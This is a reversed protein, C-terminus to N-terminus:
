CIDNRSFSVNLFKDTELPHILPYVGLNQVRTIVSLKAVSVLHGYKQFKGDHVPNQQVSWMMFDPLLEM